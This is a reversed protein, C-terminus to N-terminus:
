TNLKTDVEDYLSMEDRTNLERREMHTTYHTFTTISYLYYPFTTMSILM